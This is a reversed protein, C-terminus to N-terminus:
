ESKASEDKGLVSEFVAAFVEREYVKEHEVWFKRLLIDLVELLKKQGEETKGQEDYYSSLASLARMVTLTNVPFGEPM